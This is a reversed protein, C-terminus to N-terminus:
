RWTGDTFMIFTLGADTRWILGGAFDQITATLAWEYNTANGLGSQVQSYTCWIKGFGRRPTPPSEPVGCSFEANGEVWTDNYISWGGGNYIVYMKDNSERWFMRGYQFDEQVVTGTRAASSPCGLRSENNTYATQFNSNVAVACATPVPTNTPPRTTPVPTRSPTLTPQVTATPQAETTLTLSEATLTLSENAAAVAVSTSEQAAAVAAEFTVEYIATMTLHGVTPSPTYTATVVVVQTVEAPSVAVETETGDDGGSSALIVALVVLFLLGVVALGGGILWGALKRQHPPPPLPGTGNPIEPLLVGSISIRLAAAFERMSTFRQGPDVSLARNVALAVHDSVQPQLQKISPLNMPTLGPDYGTLLQHLVVGLSYVDSRADTQGRGYQEPAAYGPTGLSVTDQRQGPKFFRAIGFDILKLTGDAQVMINGPKLDRFIIPPNQHHLYDLVSGLQSGWLLVQSEVFGQNHRTLASELTEGKVFEMVLYWMQNEYFFDMVRAINPHNLRALVQAEQEFATLIWDRDQVPVHTPNMQKIAVQRGGLRSDTALYVAGMGGQSIFQQIHYRGQLPDGPQLM